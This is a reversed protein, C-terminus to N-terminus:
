EANDCSLQKALYRIVADLGDCTLSSICLFSEKKEKFFSQIKEKEEINTATDIKTLIIVRKKELLSSSFEGLEHLLTHYADIPDQEAMDSIDIVFALIHTREIHQLFQIGLGQGKHADGIIGPIDAIVFSNFNSMSVVGLQPTLTTFPYNAIKPRAKSVVSILTSKGANPFGVLGVDAISKLELQLWLEKGPLGPQAYRPARNKGSKFHVNGLGGKGGELLLQTTEDLVDLLVENTEYDYIITGFPVCIHKDGGNSGRKKKGMGHQGNGAKQQPQLRLDYLTNLRKDGAIYISGGDGGDGGDPGGFEVYKEHRFSSCGAGGKGSQIYIKATDIFNM